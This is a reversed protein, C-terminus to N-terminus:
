ISIHQPGNHTMADFFIRTIVVGTFISFVTGILITAAFNQVPGTGFNWLVVGGIFTTVHSDIVASFAAEYGAKVASRPMKGRRLEERIRENIIVNTDVALGVTLLLGAVGPLTITAGLWAMAALIFVVNFTVGIVSIFGSVRYYFLMFLIILLGGIIFAKLANDVSDAGLTPGVSREEGFTVPAPLAGSKLVLALDRAESEIQQRTRGGGMTILANGGSIKDQFVPSSDVKDELVIAFRRGVNAGSVEEFIRAGSPSFTMSVAPSSDFQSAQTIRADVLDDGTLDVKRSLTYTRMMGAKGRNDLKGFRIVNSQPVKGKLYTKVKESDPEAFVLFIDKGSRGGRGQYASEQLTVGEPLDKLEKLFETEDDCMQFELQGTTGVVSKAHQPDDYGPLQIQIENEGRKAITPETVGLKDIRNRITMITQDVADRRMEGALRPDLRLTVSNDTASFPQLERFEEFMTDEFIQRDKSNAFTVKIVADQKEGEATVNVFSVKKEKTKEALRDAIRVTKDAIAKDVDVRLALNIGGQLDLGPVIHRQLAWSPLFKEFANKDKRVLKLENENLSFYIFTPVLLYIAFGFLAFSALLKWMWSHKM